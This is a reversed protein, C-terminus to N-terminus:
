GRRKMAAEVLCIADQVGIHHYSARAAAIADTPAEGGQLWRVAAESLDSVVDPEEISAEAHLARARELWRRASEERGQEALCCALGAAQLSAMRNAKAAVHGEIATEYLAEAEGLEGLCHRLQALTEQAHALFRADGVRDVLALAELALPVGDVPRGQVRCLNAARCLTHGRVRPDDGGALEVARRNHEMAVEFRALSREIMALNGHVTAASARDELQSALDLARRFWGGAEELRWFVQHQAAMSNCARMLTRRDGARAARDLASRYLREAAAYEEGERALTGLNLEIGAAESEDLVDGAALAARWDEAASSRPGTLYYLAGRRRLAVARDRPGAACAIAEQADAFADAIRGSRARLLARRELAASLEAADVERCREVLEDTWSLQAELPGHAIIWPLLALGARAGRADRFRRAVAMLDSRLQELADLAEPASRRLSPDLAEAQELAWTAHAAMLDEGFARAFEAVGAPLRFATHTPGPDTHLLGLEEVAALDQSLAQSGAVAELASRDFTQPFTAAAALLHQM